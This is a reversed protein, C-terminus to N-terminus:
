PSEKKAAEHLLATIGTVLVRRTRVVSLGGREIFHELTEFQLLADVCGLVARGRAGRLLRLEVAFQQEVQDTLQARRRQLLDAVLPAAPARLVAVRVAPGLTGYLALRHDVLRVIREDLPGEGLHPLLFSPEALVVSRAIAARVLADIDEFYRYVSRLSVGSRTAVAEATPRYNGEVFLARVADLVAESNRDRRATRGDVQASGDASM